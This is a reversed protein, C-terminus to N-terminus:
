EDRMVPQPRYTKKHASFDLQHLLTLRITHINFHEEVSPRYQNIYQYLIAINLSKSPLLTVGGLIRLQDFYHKEIGDGAHLMIESAGQWWVGFKREKTVPLIPGQHQYMYRARFSFLVDGKNAGASPSIERWRQETRIRHFYTTKGLTKFVQYQEWLRNETLLNKDANKVHTGFWAYGASLRHNRDTLYTLGVRAASLVSTNERFNTTRHNLDFMYGWHKSVIAQHNYTYWMQNSTNQAFGGTKVILLILFIWFIRFWGMNRFAQVLNGKKM